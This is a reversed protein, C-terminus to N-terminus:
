KMLRREFYQIFRYQLSENENPMEHDDYILKFSKRNLIKYLYVPLVVAMDQVHILTPHLKYLLRLAKFTFQFVTFFRLFSSNRFSAQIEHIKIGKGLNITLPQDPFLIFDIIM